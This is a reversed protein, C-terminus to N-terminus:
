INIYLFVFLFQKSETLIVPTWITWSRVDVVLKPIQDKMLWRLLSWFLASSVLDMKISSITFGNNFTTM